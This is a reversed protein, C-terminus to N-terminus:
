SENYHVGDPCLNPTQLLSLGYYHSNNETIRIGRPKLQQGYYHTDTIALHGCPSLQSYQILSLLIYASAHLALNNVTMGYGVLFAGPANYGAKDGGGPPTYFINRDSLIVARPQTAFSVVLIEKASRFSSTQPM